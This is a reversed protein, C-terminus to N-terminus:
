ESPTTIKSGDPRMMALETAISSDLTIAKNVDRVADEHRDLYSYAIGRHKYAIALNPDLRIAESCDVIAEEYRCLKLNAFSRNVYAEAYNPNLAVACDFDSVAGNHDGVNNKATGQIFLARAEIDAKESSRVSVNSVNPRSGAGGSDKEPIPLGSASVDANSGNSQAGSIRENRVGLQKIRRAISYRVVGLEAEPNRPHHPRYTAVTVGALDSPLTPPDTRSTVLFVRDLGLAGMFLGAEFLVNDRPTTATADRSVRNDDPTLILIAFDFKDLSRVLSELTSRTLVFLGQDWVEVQCEDDLLTQMAYAIDRGESSSGVFVAPRIRATSM